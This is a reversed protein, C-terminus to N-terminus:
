RTPNSGGVKWGMPLSEVVVGYIGRSRLPLFRPDIRVLSLIHAALILAMSGRRIEVNRSYIMPVNTRCAPGTNHRSHCYSASARLRVSHSDKARARESKGTVHTGFISKFTFATHVAYTAGLLGYFYSTVSQRVLWHILLRVFIGQGVGSHSNSGGVKNGSM